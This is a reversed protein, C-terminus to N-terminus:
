FPPSCHADVIEGSQVSVLEAGRALEILVDSESTVAPWTFATGNPLTASPESVPDVAFSLWLAEMFHSFEFEYPTSNGRYEGHTGFLLPLESSHYAGFWPVPSTNNFVGSYRYRYTTLGALERNKVEQGTPCAIVSQTINYLTAAGPGDPTYSVFGAGENANSGFIAPVKAVLGKAARDTYNSFVTVNDAINTFSISPSRGSIQYLSLVNEIAAAPVQRVCDVEATANLDGCGVLSALFTFNTQAYDSTGAISPSGSDASIGSIIPDDPYTYPYLSVSAGGASQGWFIIKNPDGGFAAINDRTWELVLRQDLLGANIDELGRANPFGFVNVRYSNLETLKCYRIITARAVYKMSIVIHSQTRQIWKDPIKYLSNAGGSTFGGGPVYVFVPWKGWDAASAEPAWVDLYLCDLLLAESQGGNILFQPLSETYITSSNSYQQMCSPAFATTNLPRSSSTKAKPPAFRLAGLPPEAYPVGLWQRVNPATSNVFGNVQGSTTSISLHSAANHSPSCASLAYFLALCTALHSRAMTGTPCISALVM